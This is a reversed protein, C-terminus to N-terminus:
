RIEGAGPVRVPLCAWCWAMVQCCGDTGCEGACWAPCAYGYRVWTVRGCGDCRTWDHEPRDNGYGLALNREQAAAVTM